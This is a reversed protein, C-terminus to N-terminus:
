KKLFGVVVVEYSDPLCHAPTPFTSCHQRLVTQVSILYKDFSLEGKMTKKRWVLVRWFIFKRACAGIWGTYHRVNEASWYVYCSPLNEHKSGSLITQVKRLYLLYLCTKQFRQLITTYHLFTAYYISTLHKYIDLGKEETAPAHKLTLKKKIEMALTNSVQASVKSKIQRYRVLNKILEATRYSNRSFAAGLEGSLQKTRSGM